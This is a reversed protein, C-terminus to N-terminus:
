STVLPSLPLYVVMGEGEPRATPPSIGNSPPILLFFSSLMEKESTIIELGHIHLRVWTVVYETVLTHVLETDM